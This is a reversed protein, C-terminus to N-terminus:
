GFFSALSIHIEQRYEERTARDLHVALLAEAQERRTIGLIHLLAAIDELDKDRASILKLALIYDPNPVYVELRGRSFWLRGDPVKGISQFFQAMHDSLWAPTIKLDQAVYTAAAKLQRYEESDQSIQQVIIDVDGTASRNYMQTVMYAGGVLLIRVCQKLGMEQLEDGVLSLMKVIDQANM